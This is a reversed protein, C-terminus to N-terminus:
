TSIEQVTYKMQILFLVVVVFCVVVAVFFVGRAIVLSIKSINFIITNNQHLTSMYFYSPSHM